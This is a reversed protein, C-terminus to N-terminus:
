LDGHQSWYTATRVQTTLEAIIRLKGKSIGASREEVVKM